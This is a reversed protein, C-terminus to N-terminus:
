EKIDGGNDEWYGRYAAVAYEECVEQGGGGDESEECAWDSVGSAGGGICAWGEFRVVVGAAISRKGVELYGRMLEEDGNGWVGRALGATGFGVRKMGVRM